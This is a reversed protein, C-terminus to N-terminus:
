GVYREQMKSLAYVAAVALAGYVVFKVPVGLIRKPEDTDEAGYGRPYPLSYPVYSPSFGTAPTMYPGMAPTLPYASPIGQVIAPLALNAAGYM